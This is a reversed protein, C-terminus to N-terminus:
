NKCFVERGGMSYFIGNFSYFHGAYFYRKKQTLETEKGTLLDIAVVIQDNPHSSTWKVLVLKNHLEGLINKNFLEGGYIADKGNWLEQDKGIAKIRFYPPGFRIEGAYIVEISISEVMSTMNELSFPYYSKVKDIYGIDTFDIEELQM